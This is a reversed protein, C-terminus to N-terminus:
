YNFIVMIQFGKGAFLNSGSKEPYIQFREPNWFGIVNFSWRDYTRRWNAFTYLDKNKWDYYLICNINDLLGMPYRLSVASFKIDEGVGLADKSKEFIFHEGLVTLGNGLNFTYDLGFNLARQWKFLILESRQHVLSGEFWVGVGIDWKGDLAFRNEPIRTSDYDVQFFSSKSLDIKRHHYNFAIEGNKLPAQIRGGIEPSKYYTPLYEWGKPEDNGYLGWFWVNTNNLFYFRLLLGYVGDTMQLPDRPDIRDFWMLPRLLTASGFNIKQLGLRAEFKSKSFRLWMRYLKVKGETQINDFAHVNGTGYANLSFEIDFTSDQTISKEMYFEPIYRLGVQTDKLSDTNVVVWGSVLGKLLFTQPAAHKQILFFMLAIWLFHWKRKSYQMNNVAKEIKQCYGM